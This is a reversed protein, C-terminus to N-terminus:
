VCLSLEPVRVHVRVVERQQDGSAQVWRVLTM